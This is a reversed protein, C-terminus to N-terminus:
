GPEIPLNGAISSKAHFFNQRSMEEHVVPKGTYPKFFNASGTKVGHLDEAGALMEVIAIRRLHLLQAM